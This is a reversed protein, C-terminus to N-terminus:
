IKPKGIYVTHGSNLAPQTLFGLTGEAVDEPSPLVGGEVESTLDEVLHREKRKFLAFAGTDTILHGVVVALRIGRETLAPILARLDQEARHKTRAVPAYGPLTEMQGWRHAWLSTMYVIWSGGPMLDAEIAENVLALQADRNILMAYGPDKDSELGGAANLVLCDLQKFNAKVSQYMSRRETELTIDTQLLLIESGTGALERRVREARAQKGPDRFTVAVKAGLDAAHRAIAKGIGRTGGTVLVVKGTLNKIEQEM